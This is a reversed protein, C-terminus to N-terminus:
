FNRGSLTAINERSFDMRKMCQLFFHFLIIVIIMLTAVDTGMGAKDAFPSFVVFEQWLFVYLKDKTLNLAVKDKNKFFREASSCIGYKSTERRICQLNIKSPVTKFLSFCLIVTYAAVSNYIAAHLNDAVTIANVWFQVFDCCM